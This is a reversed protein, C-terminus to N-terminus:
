TARVIHCIGTKEFVFGFQIQMNNKIVFCICINLLDFLILVLYIIEPEKEDNKLTQQGISIERM